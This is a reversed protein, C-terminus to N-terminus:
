DFVKNAKIHDILDQTVLPIVEPHFHMSDFVRYEGAHELKFFDLMPAQLVGALQDWYEARPFHREAQPAAPTSVLLVKAGRANLKDIMPAINIRANEVWEAPPIPKFGTYAKDVFKRVQESAAEEDFDSNLIPFRMRNDYTVYGPRAVSFVQSDPLTMAKLLSIIDIEGLFIMLSREYLLRLRTSIKRAPNWARRYYDIYKTPWLWNYLPSHPPKESALHLMLPHINVIVKGIFDKDDALDELFSWSYNGAVCLNVIRQGPFAKELLDQSLGTQLMSDGLIVLVNRDGRVTDRNLSWLAEGDLLEGRVYSVKQRFYTETAAVLLCLLALSVLWFRVGLKKSEPFFIAM